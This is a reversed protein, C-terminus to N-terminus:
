GDGSYWGGADDAAARNDSSVSQLIQKARALRKEVGANPIAKGHYDVPFSLINSYSALEHDYQAGEKAGGGQASPTEKTGAGLGGLISAYSALQACLASTLLGRLM